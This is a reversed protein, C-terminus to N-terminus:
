EKVVGSKGFLVAIPRDHLMYGNTCDLARAAIDEDPFTVFAQGRLRGKKMIDIQIDESFTSYLDKLDKQTVHKGLNKLYLKNSPTGREYNKFIPFSGREAVTVCNDRIKQQEETLSTNTTTNTYPATETTPTRTETSKGINIKIKNTVSKTNSPTPNTSTSSTSAIALRQNEAAIRELRAQKVKKEQLETVRSFENEEDELESEDSALLVDQKRKLVSPISEKEHPGFPPPM